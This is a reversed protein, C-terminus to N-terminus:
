KKLKAFMQEITTQKLVKNKELNLKKQLNYICMLEQETVSSQQELFKLYQDGLSLGEDFQIKKLNDLDDDDEDDSSDRAPILVDEIIENDTMQYQDKNEESNTMWDVVANEEFIKPNKDSIAKAFSLLENEKAKVPDTHFGTFEEEDNESDIFLSNIWLNHWANILTSQSVSNWSEALLYICDKLNFYKKCDSLKLSPDLDLIKKLFESKYHCKFSQIIGQDMPQILSTTNPPLFFAVVNDAQLVEVGPHASCNDLLLLIKCDPALGVSNCHKRAEKTFHNLFWDTTIDKTVWSKKNNKYIVPLTKIGKFARPHASKGVVLPKCKYTGAANSCLLVTIREKAEKVGSPAAEDSTVFTNRPLCRWFLGTEDMNFIQDPTLNEEAVKADFEEVFEEAAEKDASLKEGCAKIYRIGHRKKFRKLWGSSFDCPEPIQLDAHFQKAKARLLPGSIPVGDGRRQKFWEYVISDLDKSKATHLSKRNSIGASSDSKSFFNLTKESNKRIDYVTRVAIGYTSALFRPTAGDKLKKIIEVKQLVTLAVHKRKERSFDRLRKTEM